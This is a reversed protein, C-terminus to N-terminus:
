YYNGLERQEKGLGGLAVTATTAAEVGGVAEPLRTDQKGFERQVSTERRRRSSERFSKRTL